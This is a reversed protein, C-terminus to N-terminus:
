SKKRRLWPKGIKVSKGFNQNCSRFIQNGLHTPLTWFVISEWTIGLSIPILILITSFISGKVSESSILWFHLFFLIEVSLPRDLRRNTGQLKDFGFSRVWYDLCFNHALRVVSPLAYNQFQVILSGHACARRKTLKPDFAAPPPTSKKSNNQVKNSYNLISIKRAFPNPSSKVLFFSKSVCFWIQQLISAWDIYFTYIM